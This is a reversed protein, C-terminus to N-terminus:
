TWRATLAQRRFDRMTMAFCRRFLNKLDNPNPYGYAAAIEDIPDKTTRLLRKVEELDQRWQWGM